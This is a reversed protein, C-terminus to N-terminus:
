RAPPFVVISRALQATELVLPWRDISPWAFEHAANKAGLTMTRVPATEAAVIDLTGSISVAVRTANVVENVPVMVATPVSRLEDISVPITAQLHARDLIWESEASGAVAAWVLVILSALFSAARIRSSRKAM